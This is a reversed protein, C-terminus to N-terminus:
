FHQNKSSSGACVILVSSAVSAVPHDQYLDGFNNKDKLKRQTLVLHTVPRAHPEAELHLGHSSLSRCCFPAFEQLHQQFLPMKEKPLSIHM